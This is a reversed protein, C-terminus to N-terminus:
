LTSLKRYKRLAILIPEPYTSLYSESVDNFSQATVHISTRTYYLYQIMRGLVNDEFYIDENNTYNFADEEAINGLALLLTDQSTDTINLLTKAVVIAQSNLNM